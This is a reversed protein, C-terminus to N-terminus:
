RAALDDPKKADPDKEEKVIAAPGAVGAALDYVFWDHGRRYQLARGDASFQPASEHEPTRTVQILRGSALERIFVDGNRVFAARARARDFTADDGDANAMAQPDVITDKGDALDVRHLDRVSTGSRKLAYYVSRGDVSWYPQEVPSGIWDPDAMAQELTISRAPAAALSLLAAFGAVLCRPM